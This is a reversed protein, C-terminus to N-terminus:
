EGKAFLTPKLAPTFCHLAEWVDPTYIHQRRDCFNTPLSCCKLLSAGAVFYCARKWLIEKYYLLKSDCRSNNRM